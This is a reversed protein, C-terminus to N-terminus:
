GKLLTGNKVSFTRVGKMYNGNVFPMGKVYRTLFKADKKKLPMFPMGVPRLCVLQNNVLTAPSKLEPGCHVFEALLHPPVQVRPRWFQLELARVARSCQRRGKSRFCRFMSM